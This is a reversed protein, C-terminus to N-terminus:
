LLLLVLNRYKFITMVWLGYCPTASLLHMSWTWILSNDTKTRHKCLGSILPAVPVSLYNHSSFVFRRSILPTGTFHLHGTNLNCDTRPQLHSFDNQKISLSFEKLTHGVFWKHPKFCMVPHWNWIYTQQLMQAQRQLVWWGPYMHSGDSFVLAM